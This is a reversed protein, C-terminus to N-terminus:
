CDAMGGDAYPCGPYGHGLRSDVASRGDTGPSSFLYAGLAVIGAPLIMLAIGVVWLTITVDASSQYLPQWRWGLWRWGM